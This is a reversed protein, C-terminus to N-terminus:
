GSATFATAFAIRRDRLPSLLAWLGIADKKIAPGDPVPLVRRLLVTLVLDRDKISLVGNKCM